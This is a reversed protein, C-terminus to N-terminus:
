GWLQTTKRPTRKAKEKKPVGGEGVPMMRELGENPVGNTTNRGLKKKGQRVQTTIESAKNKKLKGRVRGRGTVKKFGGLRGKEQWLRELNEGGKM